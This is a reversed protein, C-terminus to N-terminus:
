AAGPALSALVAERRAKWVARDIEAIKAAAAAASRRMLDHRSGDPHDLVQMELRHMGYFHTALMSEFNRFSLERTFISQIEDAIFAIYDSVPGIDRDGLAFHHRPMFSVLYDLDALVLDYSRRYENLDVTTLREPPRSALEEMDAGLHVIGSQLNDDVERLRGGVYARYEGWKRLFARDLTRRVFYGGLWSVFVLTVAIGLVESVLNQLMARDFFDILAEAANM